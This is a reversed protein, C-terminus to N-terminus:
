ALICLVEGETSQSETIIAADELRTALHELYLLAKDQNRQNEAIISARQAASEHGRLRHMRPDARLEQVCSRIIKAMTAKERDKLALLDRINEALAVVTAKPM